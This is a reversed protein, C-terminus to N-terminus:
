CVGEWQRRWEELIAGAQREVDGRQLAREPSIRGATIMASILPYLPVEVKLVAVGCARRKRYTKQKARAQLSSL